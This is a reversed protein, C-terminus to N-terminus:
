PYRVPNVPQSPWQQPAQQQQGWQQQPYPQQQPWQQQPYQQQPFQQPQMQPQPQQWQPQQQPFQQPQMQPQMQPQPQQWQPQQQHNIWTPQGPQVQQQQQQNQQAQQLWLPQNPDVQPQQMMPQQQMQPQMWVPQGPQAQQPAQQNQQAQQLWLPQNPDVQPQMQQMQKARRQHSKVMDSYSYGNKGPKVDESIEEKVDDAKPLAATPAAATGAPEDVTGRNGELPPIENKLESLKEMEKSWGLDVKLGKGEDLHEEFLDVIANIQKAVKQFGGMLSHFYPANRTNTGFSYAETECEPLIYRYLAPIAVLDAKRVPVTFIKRNAEDIYDTLPFAMVCVKQHKTGKFKGGSKMYVRVLRHNGNGGKGAAAIVKGVNVLTTKDAGKLADLLSHQKPNLKAHMDKNAALETLEIMLVSIAETIRWTVADKLRTFVESEGKHLNECVPHFAIHEGWFEPKHRQVEWSPIVLQRGEVLFPTVDGGTTRFVADTKEDILLGTSEIVGRYLKELRTQKM